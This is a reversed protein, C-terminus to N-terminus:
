WAPDRGKFACRRWIGRRHEADQWFNYLYDGRISVRPIRDSSNYIELFRDRIPDFEPVEELLGTSHANRAKVWEMAQEGDIEELWLYPDSHDSAAVFTVTSLIAVAWFIWHRM